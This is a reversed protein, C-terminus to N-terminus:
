SAVFEATATGDTVTITITGAPSGTNAFTDGDRVVAQTEGTGGMYAPDPPDDQDWEAGVSQYATPVPSSARGNASAVYDYDVDDGAGYAMSSNANRVDLTHPKAIQGEILAIDALEAATPVAGATFYVIKGM